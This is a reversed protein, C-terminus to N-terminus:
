SPTADQTCNKSYIKKPLGCRWSLLRPKGKAKKATQASPAAPRRAGQPAKKPKGGPADYGLKALQDDFAEVAEAKQRLLDDIRSSICKM